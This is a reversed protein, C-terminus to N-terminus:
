LVPLSVSQSRVTLVRVFSWSPLLPLLMSSKRLPFPVPTTLVPGQSGCTLAAPSPWVEVARAYWEPHIRTFELPHPFEGKRKRFESDVLRIFGAANLWVQGRCRWGCLVWGCKLPGGQATSRM